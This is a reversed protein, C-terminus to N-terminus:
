AKRGLGAVIGDREPPATQPWGAHWAQAAVLGPPVLELGGFTATIEEWTHSYIRPGSQANYANAFDRGAQGPAFGVSIIVYSGPALAETLVALIGRATGGDVFHLICALVVCVPATLDLGAGRIAEDGLIALPDRVDGAVAVVQRSGGALLAQSHLVAMEDVDVYAVLADPIIARAAEHTALWLPTDGAARVPSTPLGSGVDVFQRVGQGAVYSVARTQFKKNDLAQEAVDPRVQRVAEAATRDAEFNDKGGLWYDYMRAMNPKTTDFSMTM